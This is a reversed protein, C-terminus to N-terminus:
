FELLYSNLETQGIPSSDSQSDRNGASSVQSHSVRKSRSFWALGLSSSEAELSAEPIFNTM